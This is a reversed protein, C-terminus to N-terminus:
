KGRKCDSGFLIDSNNLITRFIKSFFFLLCRRIEIINRSDCFYFHFHQLFGFVKDNENIGNINEMFQNNFMGATSLTLNGSRGRYHTALHSCANFPSFNTHESSDDTTSWRSKTEAGLFITEDDCSALVCGPTSVDLADALNTFTLSSECHRFFVFPVISARFVNKEWSSVTM